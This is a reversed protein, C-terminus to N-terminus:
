NPAPQTTRSLRTTSMCRRPDIHREIIGDVLQVVGTIMDDARDQALMGRMWVSLDSLRPTAESASDPQEGV